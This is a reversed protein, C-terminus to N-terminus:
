HLAFSFDVHRARGATLLEVNAVKVSHLPGDIETEWFKLFKKLEPFEPALDLAQWLYTQLLDLHDPMRYLIEATTLRYGNLQREIDTM